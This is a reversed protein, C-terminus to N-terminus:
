TPSARPGRVRRLGEARDRKLLQSHLAAVGNVVHSGVTALNAMRVSKEGNEDILSMRRLATTTVPFKARVEELFRRNIEFIIEVHRPLLRQMLPLPWTELAEPLLTHNTYGCAAADDGLQAGV